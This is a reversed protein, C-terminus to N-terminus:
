GRATEEGEGPVYRRWWEDAAASLEDAVATRTPDAHIRAACDDAPTVLVVVRSAGLQESWEKRERPNPATVIFWARCGDRRSLETLRRNREILAAQLHRRKIDTSRRATGALDAIIADLDIVVDGPQKQKEVWTSKGAGPAGCVITLPVASCPLGQPYLVNTPVAIADDLDIERAYNGAREGRQIAGDHCPKCVSQLNGPNAFLAWQGNHPRRHHVVTAPAQKCEQCIPHLALQQARLGTQPHKWIPLHYWARWEQSARRDADRSKEREQRSSGRGDFPRVLPSLGPLRSRM